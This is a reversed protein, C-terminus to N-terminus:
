KINYVDKSEMEYVDAIDYEEGTKPDYTIYTVIEREEQVTKWKYGHRILYSVGESGKNGVRRKTGRVHDFELVKIDKEGCDTCGKIFYDELVRKFNNHRRKFKNRKVM